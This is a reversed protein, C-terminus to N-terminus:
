NLSQTWCFIDRSNLIKSAGSMVCNFFVREWNPLHQTRINMMYWTVIWLLHEFYGGGSDISARVSKIIPQWVEEFCVSRNRIAQCAYFICQQLTGENEIPHSYVLLKLTKVSLIRFAQIRDSSCPTQLEFFLHKRVFLSIFTKVIKSHLIWEQRKGLYKLYM